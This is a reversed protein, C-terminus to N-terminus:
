LRDIIGYMSKVSEADIIEEISMRNEQLKRYATAWATRIEVM